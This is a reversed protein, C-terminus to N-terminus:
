DDGEGQWAVPAPTAPQAPVVIRVPALQSRGEHSPKAPASSLVAALGGATVTTAALVGALAIASRHNTDM